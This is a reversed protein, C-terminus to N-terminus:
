RPGLIANSLFAGPIEKDPLVLNWSAWFNRVLKPDRNGLSEMSQKRIPNPLSTEM